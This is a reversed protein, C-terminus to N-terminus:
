IAGYKEELGEVILDQMQQDTMTALFGDPALEESLEDLRRLAVERQVAGNMVGRPLAGTVAIDHWVVRIVDEATLGHEDLVAAAEQAVQADVLGFVLKRGM